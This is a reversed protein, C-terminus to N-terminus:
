WADATSSGPNGIPPAHSQLFIPGEQIRWHTKVTLTTHSIDHATNHTPFRIFQLILIEM